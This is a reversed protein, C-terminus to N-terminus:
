GVVLQLYHAFIWEHQADGTADDANLDGTDDEDDDDDDCITM